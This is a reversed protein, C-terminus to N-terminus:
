CNSIRHTVFVNETLETRRLALDDENEEWMDEVLCGQINSHVRSVCGGLM